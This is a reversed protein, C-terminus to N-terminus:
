NIRETEYYPQGSFECYFRKLVKYFEDSCIKRNHTFIACLDQGKCDDKCFAHAYMIYPYQRVVRIIHQEQEQTLKDATRIVEFFNHLNSLLEFADSKKPALELATNGSKAKADLCAGRLLLYILMQSNNCRAAEQLPTVSAEVDCLHDAEVFALLEQNYQLFSDLVDVDGLEVINLFQKELGQIDAM